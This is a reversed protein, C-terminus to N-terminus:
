TYKVTNSRAIDSMIHHNVTDIGAELGPEGAGDERAGDERMKYLAASLMQKGAKGSLTAISTYLRSRDDVSLNEILYLAEAVSDGNDDIQEDGDGGGLMLPPRAVSARYDSGLKAYKRRVTPRLLPQGSSETDSDSDSASDEMAAYRLALQKQMPRMKVLGPSSKRISDLMRGVAPQGYARTMESKTAIGARGELLAVFYSPTDRAYGSEPASSPTKQAFAVINLDGLDHKQLDEASLQRNNLNLHQLSKIAPLSGRYPLASEVRLIKVSTSHTNHPELFLQDCRGYTRWGFVTYPARKWDHVTISDVAADQLEGLERSVPPGPDITNSAGVIDVDNYSADPMAQDSTATSSITSATSAGLAPYIASQDLRPGEMSEDVVTTQYRKSSTAAQNFKSQTGPPRELDPALIEDVLNEFDKPFGVEKALLDYKVRQPAWRKWLKKESPDLKRLSQIIEEIVKWDYEPVLHPLLLQFRKVLAQYERGHTRNLFKVIQKPHENRLIKCFEEKVGLHLDRIHQGPVVFRVSEAKKTLEGNKDYYEGDIFPTLQDQLDWARLIDANKKGFHKSCYQVINDFSTNGKSDTVSMMLSADNFLKELTHQYGDFATRLSEKPPNSMTVPDIWHRVLEHAEEDLVREDKYSLDCADRAEDLSMRFVMEGGADYEKRRIPDSLVANAENIRKFSDTVREKERQDDTVVRDPHVELCRKKYAKRIDHDTANRSVGLLQYASDPM